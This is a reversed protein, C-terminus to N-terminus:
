LHVNHSTEQIKKFLDIKLIIKKWSHCFGEFFWLTDRQFAQIGRLREAKNRCM